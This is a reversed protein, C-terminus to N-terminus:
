SKDDDAPPRKKGKGEGEGEGGRGAGGRGPGGRGEGRPPGGREAGPGGRRPGRAQRAKAVEEMTLGDKGDTNMRKFIEEARDGLRENGKKFEELSLVGDDNADQEKFRAEAREKMRKMMAARAAEREKESLKGDKDKDFEKMFAERDFGGGGGRPGRREGGKPREGRDPREGREGREPRKGKGEKKEDDDAMAVPALAFASAVALTTLKILKKNM